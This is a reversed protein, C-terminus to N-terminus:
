NPEDFLTQAQLDKEKRKEEWAKKVREEIIECYESSLESGIWNRNSLISMKATTGSGMFPDYVIDNENSWSIIHDNALQEPFIAPHKFAFKEKTSHGMGTNYEWVNHRKGYENIIKAKRKTRTGDKETISQVGGSKGAKKNKRDILPNFTKKKGKSFVFMYEFVQHYKDPFPVSFNNKRYIITDHVLFGIEQFFLAQRFSNLSEGGKIHGDGVVWVVVGGEKTTRYLEKAIDEFPFLYGNYTRLDDYPPSTVTLDVFCDPMRAMTDLCNENYYTNLEIEGGMKEKKLEDM